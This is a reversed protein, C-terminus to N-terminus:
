QNDLLEITARRRLKGTETRVFEPLAVVAKPIEYKSLLVKSNALIEARVDASLLEAEILLVLHEGLVADARGGVIFPAKILDRLKEEVQEPIIKVGGSNVVNDLRGLYRFSDDTVIEILDRTLVYEDNLKPADIALCDNEQLNIKIDPLVTYVDSAQSGNLKRLAIHSVTETMGYTAYVETSCDAIRLLLDDSVPAGGVIVKNINHFKPHFHSHFLQSPVMAAFAIEDLHQLKDLCHNSPELCILNMGWVMARIVMMKGGIYDTSLCLLANQEKMLNFYRGTMLASNIMKDKPIKINKPSGTSGSTKQLIFDNSPDFWDLLFQYLKKKWEAYPAPLDRLSKETQWVSDLFLADYKRWDNM